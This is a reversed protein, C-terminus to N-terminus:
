AADRALRYLLVLADRATAAQAGPMRATTLLEGLTTAAFGALRLSEFADDEDVLLLDDISGDVECAAYADAAQALTEELAARGDLTLMGELRIRVITRDKQPLSSLWDRVLGITAEDSLQFARREFRWTGTDVSRVDVGSPVLEVVLAHGPETEDFDTPEPAGSYHIRGSSGVATRSHRDGLAVYRAAGSTLLQEVAALSIPPPDKEGRPMYDMSGHGVVIRLRAPDSELAYAATLPDSTPRKTIWPVPVLDVGPAAEVAPGELVTVNPPCNALFTPSRYISSADLPDHNGPLLYIPVTSARMADLARIAVQRDLHNSEFVDGAVVIFACDSEAAIRSLTRIADIRAGTFRAQAEPSLFYRGMGLQWDSTHLFRVM